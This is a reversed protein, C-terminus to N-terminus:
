IYLDACACGAASKYLSTHRCGSWPASLVHPMRIPTVRRSIEEESRRDYLDNFKPGGLLLRHIPLDM